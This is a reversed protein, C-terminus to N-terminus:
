LALAISLIFLGIVLSWYGCLVAVAWFALQSCTKARRAEAIKQLFVNPGAIPLTVYYATSTSGGDPGVVFRYINSVIGSATFGTTIAYLLVALESSM